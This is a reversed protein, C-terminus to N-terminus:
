SPGKMLPPPSFSSCDGEGWGEKSLSLVLMENLSPHLFLAIVRGGAEKSLSLVAREDLSPSFFFLL